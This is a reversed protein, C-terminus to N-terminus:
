QGKVTEFGERDQDFAETEDLVVEPATM